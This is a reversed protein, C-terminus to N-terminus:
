KLHPAVLKAFDGYPDIAIVQRWEATMKATDPPAANQYFYGLDYHVEANDAYLWEAVRWQKEAETFNELNYQAAGLSLLATMNTPELDLIRQEWVSAGNFDEAAFYADGLAQMTVTATPNKSVEVMLATVKAQDVPHASAAGSAQTPGGSATAAGGPATTAPGSPATTKQGTSGACVLQKATMEKTLLVKQKDLDMVIPGWVGSDIGVSMLQFVQAQIDSLGTKIIVVRACAASGNAAALHPDATAESSALVHSSCASLSMAAVVTLRLVRNRMQKNKDHRDADNL